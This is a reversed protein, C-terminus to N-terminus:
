ALQWAGANVEFTKTGRVQNLAVTGTAANSFSIDQVASVNQTGNSDVAIFSKVITGSTDPSTSVPM